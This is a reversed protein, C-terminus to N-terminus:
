RKHIKPIDSDKYKLSIISKIGKWTNKITKLNPRFYDNHYKSKSEKIITSLKNRHSKYGRHLDNKTAPNQRKIYKKFLKNKKHISNQIATTFWPKQLFKKQQKKLKKMPVHSMILSNAKSLYNSFSINVDNREIEMISTWNTINFDDLISNKKFRSWDNYKLIERSPIIILFFILSFSFSHFTILHVLLLIVQLLM